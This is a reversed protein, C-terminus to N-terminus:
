YSQSIDELGLRQRTIELVSRSSLKMIVKNECESLVLPDLKDPRQSVLILFLGYKRGEAVITRFQERLAFEAKTQPEAPLLNHAEDIVFFTPVRDDQSEDKKLAEWWAARALQSETALLANIALLRTSRSVLSPLDIVELRSEGPQTTPTPRALTELIGESKFESV